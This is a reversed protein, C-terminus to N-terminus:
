EIISDSDLSVRKLSDQCVSLIRYRSCFRMQSHARCSEFSRGDSELGSSTTDCSVESLASVVFLLVAKADRRACYRRSYGSKLSSTLAQGPADGSM